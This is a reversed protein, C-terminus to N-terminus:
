PKVEIRISATTVSDPAPAVALRWIQGVRGAAELSGTKVTEGDPGIWGLVRPQAGNIPAETETTNSEDVAVAAIASVTTKDPARRIRFAFLLAPRGAFTGYEPEGIEEISGRPRASGTSTTGGGGGSEGGGAGTGSGNGSGGGTNGAASTGGSSPATSVLGAFQASAAGLPVGAAGVLEGTIPRAYARLRENLRAYTTRVFTRARGTLQRAVWDDHTPPESDAFHDDIEPDAVFVGAYEATDGALPDGPYYKVVFHPARLLAVHHVPSRLPPDFSTPYDPQKARVLQRHLSLTGLRQQPKYCELIEGAQLRRYAAVFADLPPTQEPDPIPVAEGNWSVSFHMAGADSVIKPWAHWAIACAIARMDEPPDEFAPDVVIISTGTEDGNFPDLGFTAAVADAEDSLLPEQVGDGDIGWWHRGTYPRLDKGAPVRFSSGVACGILRTELGYDTQCRTYVVITRARSLLYFITKGFGFTGAGFEKDRPEGVNRTFAVFDRAKDGDIEVDARTPGGLGSTGRDSVELLVIDERQLASALGPLREPDLGANLIESVAALSSGAVERGRIDFLVQQTDRRADWSNQIAERALVELVSLNPRGLHNRVGEASIAGSPPVPESYWRPDLSM